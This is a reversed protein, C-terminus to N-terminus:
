AGLIWRRWRALPSPAPTTEPVRGMAELGERLARHLAVADQLERSELLAEEFRAAAEPSLKGALYPQVLPVLVSERALAVVNGQAGEPETRDGM